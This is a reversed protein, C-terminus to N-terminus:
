RILHCIHVACVPLTDCVPSELGRSPLFCFIIFLLRATLGYQM